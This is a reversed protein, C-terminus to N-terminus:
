ESPRWEEPGEYTAGHDKVRILFLARKIFERLAHAAIRRDGGQASGVHAAASLVGPHSRVELYDTAENKPLGLGWRIAEPSKRLVRYGSLELRQRSASEDLVTMISFAFGLPASAPERFPQRYKLSAASVDAEGEPETPKGLALARLLESRVADHHEGHVLADDKTLWKSTSVTATTDNIRLKLVWDAAVGDLGNNIGLVLDWSKFDDTEVWLKSSATPAVLSALVAQRGRLSSSRAGTLDLAFVASRVLAGASIAGTTLWPSGGLASNVPGSMPQVRKKTAAKAVFGM